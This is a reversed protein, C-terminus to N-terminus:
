EAAQKAAPKVGWSYAYDEWEVRQAAEGIEL